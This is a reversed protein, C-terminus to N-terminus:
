IALMFLSLLAGVLLVVVVIAMAGLRASDRKNV